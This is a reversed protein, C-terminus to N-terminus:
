RSGTRFSWVVRAGDPEVIAVVTYKQNAGLQSKPILCWADPPAMEVNQVGLGGRSNQTGDLMALASQTRGGGVSIRPEDDAGGRQWAGPVLNVLTYVNRSPMPLELIQEVQVTSGVSGSTTQVQLASGSVEVTEAIAGLELVITLTVTTGVNVRLDSARYTKFGDMEVLVTYQGPILNPALYSGDAGSQVTTKVGTQQNTVVITTAPIVAGTSDEVTGVINGQAQGFVPSASALLLILLSASILLFRACGERSNQPVM